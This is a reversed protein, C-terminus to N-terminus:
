ITELEGEVEPKYKKGGIPDDRQNDAELIRKLALLAAAIVHRSPTSRGAAHAQGPPKFWRHVQSASMDLMVALRTYHVWGYREATVLIEHFADGQQADKVFAQEDIKDILLQRARKQQEALAILTKAVDNM